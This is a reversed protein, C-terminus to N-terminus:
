GKIQMLSENLRGIAAEIDNYDTSFAMRIHGEGVEGFASGPVCAIRAERLLYTALDKSSRGFGKFSPFVYFAGKPLVCHVGPIQNLAEVLLRRRRDFEKVMDEVPEQSGNYAAVAGYQAFSTASTTNYQHVKLIPQILSPPGAVYGLRWGDMAYAKSFGNVTVTREFMGPLSAISIHKAEDYIIKEYIEDSLVLLDHKIALAALEKLYSEPLVAGTPNHPSCLILMKTKSTIRSAVEEPDLLFDKDEHLPVLVPIGGVLKVNHQYELWSPDPILVEDGPNVYALLIDVIAEKCGITVVVGEDPDVEINNERQLKGAIAARLEQIGSNSTYHVHGQQLALNAAEKIHEPTDFDPRGIEMHTVKVGKKEMWGAEEFIKRISSFPIDKIREAITLSM